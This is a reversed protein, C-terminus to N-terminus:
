VKSNYRNNQVGECKNIIKLIDILVTTSEIHSLDHIRPYLLSAEWKDGKAGVAYTM